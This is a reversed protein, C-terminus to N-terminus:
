ENQKTLSDYLQTVKQSLVKWDRNEVVWQRANKGLDERLKSDQISKVLAETLSEPDDKEFLLGTVGDNVIEEHAAVNSAIVLKEMAMAEFPKLPSVM